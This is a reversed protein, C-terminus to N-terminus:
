PKVPYQYKLGAAKFWSAELVKIEKVLDEALPPPTHSELIKRTKKNLLDECHEVSEATLGATLQTRDMISPVWFKRFYKLTHEENLFHGGPGIKDILELSLTEDNIELGGMTVKVMGIIEDTMVILEPSIMTCHDMVGVDHVLDAGSLASTLVQHMIEIGAQAGIVKADTAGATGFMPLGYYHTLETLCASLLCLEPAGYTFIATRMDMINPEGGCIVPAGPKKLQIVTLHSLLEANAVSLTAAFTAPSTAGAMLMNFVVNPIGFEACILSMELAERVHVLPTTPEVSNIFFPRARLNSVGGAVIQVLEILDKLGAANLTSPVVPKASNLLCQVQTVKEGLEPPLGHALGSNMIWTINPLYDILRINNVTDAIYHPRRKRTYPDLIDPNDVVGGFYTRTGNLFICPKGDRTYLTINKPATRVAQEVVFSPIKVRKPDSVDAGAGDLLELAKESHIAVGTKELIHLSAFHLESIQKESLIRFQPSNFQMYNAKM